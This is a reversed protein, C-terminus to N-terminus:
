CDRAAPPLSLNRVSQFSTLGYIVWAPVGPFFLAKRPERSHQPRIGTQHTHEYPVPSQTLAVSSHLWPSVEM